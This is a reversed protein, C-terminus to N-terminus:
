EAAFQIAGMAEISQRGGPARNEEKLRLPIEGFGHSVEAVRRLLVIEVIFVCLYLKIWVFFLLQQMKGCQVTLVSTMVLKSFNALIGFGGVCVCM